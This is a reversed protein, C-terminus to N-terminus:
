AATVRLIHLTVDRASPGRRRLPMWFFRREARRLIFESAPQLMHM